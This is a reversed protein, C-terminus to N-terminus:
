ITALVLAGIVGLLGFTAIAYVARRPMTGDNEMARGFTFFVVPHVLFPMAFVFAIMGAAAEGAM